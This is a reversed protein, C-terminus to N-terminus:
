AGAQPALPHAAAADGPQRNLADLARKADGWHGAGMKVLFQMILANNRTVRIEDDPPGPNERLAEALHQPAANQFRQWLGKEERNGFATGTSLILIACSILIAILFVVQEFTVVYFTNPTFAFRFNDPIPVIALWGFIAMAKFATRRFNSSLRQETTRVLLRDPRGTGGALPGAFYSMMPIFVGARLMMYPGWAPAPLPLLTRHLAWITFLGWVGGAITSLPDWGSRYKGPRKDETFLGIVGGAVFALIIWMLIINGLDLSVSSLVLAEVAILSAIAFSIVPWHSRKERFLELLRKWGSHTNANDGTGSTEFSHDGGALRVVVAAAEMFYRPAFLIIDGLRNRLWYSFGSPSYATLAAVILGFGITEGQWGSRGFLPSIFMSTLLLAVGGGAVGFALPKSLWNGRARVSATLGHLTLAQSFIIAVSWFLMQIGVFPNMDLFIGFFMLAINFVGFPATLYIREVNRRAKREFISEPGLFSIRQQIPSRLADILGGSWRSGAASVSFSSRKERLKVASSLTVGFAPVRGLGILNHTQQFVSWLDESQGIGNPIFGALGFHQSDTAVSVAGDLSTHAGSLSMVPYTPHSLAAMIPWFHIAALNAWGTGIKDPIAVLASGHGGEVAESQRGIPEITNSTNRFATLIVLDPNALMRRYDKMVKELELVNTNRDLIHMARFAPLQDALLMMGNMVGSKTSVNTWNYTVAQCGDGQGSIHQFLRGIREAQLLLFGHTNIAAPSDSLDDHKRYKNLTQVFCVEGLSANAISEALEMTNISTDLTTGGSGSVITLLRTLDRALLMKVRDYKDVGEFRLGVPLPEATSHDLQCRHLLSVKHRLERGHLIDLWRGIEQYCCNEDGDPMPVEANRAAIRLVKLYQQLPEFGKDTLEKIDTLYDKRLLRLADLRAQRIALRAPMNHLRQRVATAYKEHVPSALSGSASAIVVKAGPPSPSIIETGETSPYAHEHPAQREVVPGRTPWFVSVVSTVIAWLGYYILYLTVILAILGGYLRPYPDVQAQYHGLWWGSTLYGIASGVTLFLLIQLIVIVTVRRRSHGITPRFHHYFSLGILSRRMAVYGWTEALAVGGLLVKLFWIGANPEPIYYIGVAAMLAPGGMLSAAFKTWLNAPGGMWVGGAPMNRWESLTGFVALLALTAPAAWYTRFTSVTNAVGDTLGLGIGALVIFFVPLLDAYEQGIYVHISKTWWGFLHRLRDIMWHRPTEWGSEHLFKIYNKGRGFFMGRSIGHRYLIEQVRADDRRRLPTRLELFIAQLYTYLKEWVYPDVVGRRTAPREWVVRDVMESRNRSRSSFLIAQFYTSLDKCLAVLGRRSRNRRCRPRALRGNRAEAGRGRSYEQVLYNAVRITFRDLANLMDDGETGVVLHAGDAHRKRWAILAAYIPYIYCLFQVEPIGDPTFIRRPQDRQLDPRRPDAPEFAVLVNEAVRKVAMRAIEDTYLSEPPDRESSGSTAASFPMRMRPLGERFRDWRRRWYRSVALILVCYILGPLGVFVAVPVYKISRIAPFGNSDTLEVTQYWRGSLMDRVYLTQREGEDEIETRQWIAIVEGKENTALIPKFWPVRTDLYVRKERSLFPQLPYSMVQSFQQLYLRGSDRAHFERQLYNAESVSVYWYGEVARCRLWEVDQLASNGIKNGGPGQRLMMMDQESIRPQLISLQPRSPDYSRRGIEGPADEKPCTGLQLRSSNYGEPLQDRDTADRGAFLMLQGLSGGISDRIGLNGPSIDIPPVPRNLKRFLTTNGQMWWLNIHSVWQKSGVLRRNDARILDNGLPDNPLLYNEETHAADQSSYYPRGGAGQVLKKPTSEVVGLTTNATVGYASYHETIATEGQRSGGFPWVRQRWDRPAARENLHFAAYDWYAKAYLDLATKAITGSKARFVGMLANRPTLKVTRQSYKGNWESSVERSDGTDVMILRELNDQPLRYDVSIGGNFSIRCSVQLTTGAHLGANKLDSSIQRLQSILSATTVSDFGANKFDGMLGGTDSTDDIGGFALREIAHGDPMMMSEFRRKIDRGEAEDFHAKHARLSSSLQNSSLGDRLAQEFTEFGPYYIDVVRIGKFTSRSHMLQSSDGMAYEHQTRWRVPSETDRTSNLQWSTLRGLADIDRVEVLTAAAKAENLRNALSKDDWLVETKANAWDVKNLDAPRYAAVTRHKAYVDSEYVEDVIQDPGVHYLPRERGAKPDYVTGGLFIVRPGLRQQLTQPPARAGASQLELPGGYGPPNYPDVPNPGPLPAGVDNALARYIASRTEGDHKNYANIERDGVKLRDYFRREMTQNLANWEFLVHGEKDRDTLRLLTKGDPSYVAIAVADGYLKVGYRETVHHSADTSYIPYQWDVTGAFHIVRSPTIGDQGLYSRSVLHEGKWHDTIKRHTVLNERLQDYSDDPFSDSESVVPALLTEEDPYPPGANAEDLLKQARQVSAERRFKAGKVGYSIQAVHKGDLTLFLTLNKDAQKVSTQRERVFCFPLQDSGAGIGILGNLKMKRIPTHTNPKVDSCDIEVETGPATVSVFGWAQQHDTLWKLLQPQPLIQGELNNSADVKILADESYPFKLSQRVPTPLDRVRKIGSFQRDNFTPAKLAVPKGGDSELLIAGADHSMRAIEEQLAYPAGLVLTEDKRVRVNGHIPDQIDGDESLVIIFPAGPDAKLPHVIHGAIKQNTTQDRWSFIHEEDLQLDRSLGLTRMRQQYDQRLEEWGVPSLFWGPVRGKHFELFAATERLSAQISWTSNSDIRVEQKTVLDTIEGPQAGIRFFGYEPVFRGNVNETGAGVYSPLHEKATSNQNGEAGLISLLVPRLTPLPSERHLRERAIEDLSASTEIIVIQDRSLNVPRALLRDLQPDLFQGPEAAQLIVVGVPGDPWNSNLPVVHTHFKAGGYSVTENKNSGHVIIKGELSFKREFAQLDVSPDLVLAGGKALRQELLEISTASVDHHEWSGAVKRYSAPDSLREPVIAILEDPIGEPLSSYVERNDGTDRVMGQYGALSLDSEFLLSREAGSSSPVTLRLIFREDLLDYSYSAQISLSTPGPGLGLRSGLAAPVSGTVWRYEDGPHPLAHIYKWYATSRSENVSQLYALGPLSDALRYVHSTAERTTRVVFAGILPARGTRRGTQNFVYRTECVGSALDRVEKVDTARDFEREFNPIVGAPLEQEWVFPDEIGAQAREIATTGLEFQYTGPGAFLSGGSPASVRWSQAIVDWYLEAGPENKLAFARTGPPPSAVREDILFWQGETTDLLATKALGSLTPVALRVSPADNVFGVHSHVPSLPDRSDMIDLGYRDRAVALVRPHLDVSVHVTGNLSIQWQQTPKTPCVDTADSTTSALVLSGNAPALEPMRGETVLANWGEYEEPLSPLYVLVDENRLVNGREVPPQCNPWIVVGLPARPVIGLPYYPRVIESRSGVPVRVPKGMDYVSWKLGEQITLNDTKRDFVVRASGQRRPVFGGHAETLNLLGTKVARKSDIYAQFRSRIGTFQLLRSVGGNTSLKGAVTGDMRDLYAAGSTPRVLYLDGKETLRLLASQGRSDKAPVEQIFKPPKADVYGGNRSVVKYRIASILSKGNTLLGALYAGDLIRYLPNTNLSVLEAGSKGNALNDIEHPLGQAIQAAGLEALAGTGILKLREGKTSSNGIWIYRQSDVITFAGGNLVSWDDPQWRKRNQVDARTMLRGDFRLVTACDKSCFYIAGPVVQTGPSSVLVATASGFVKPDLRFGDGASDHRVSNNLKMAGGLGLIAGNVTGLGVSFPGPIKEWISREVTLGYASPGSGPALGPAIPFPNPYIVKNIVGPAAGVLGYALPAVGGSGIVFAENALQVALFPDLWSSSRLSARAFSRTQQSILTNKSITAISAIIQRDEFSSNGALNQQSTPQSLGSLRTQLRMVATELQEIQEVRQTKKGSDLRVLLKPSALDQFHSSVALLQTRLDARQKDSLLADNAPLLAELSKTGKRIANLADQLQDAQKGPQFSWSTTSQLAALLFDIDRKSVTAMNTLAVHPALARASEARKEVGQKQDNLREGQTQLEKKQEALLSTDLTKRAAARQLRAAQVALKGPNENLSLTSELTARAHEWASFDFELSFQGYWLRIARAKASIGLLSWLREEESDPLLHAAALTAQGASPLKDPLYAPSLTPDLFRSYAQADEVADAAAALLDQESTTWNGPKALRRQLESLKELAIISKQLARGFQDPEPRPSPLAGMLARAESAADNLTWRRSIQTLENALIKQESESLSLFQNSKNTSFTAQELRYRILKESTNLAREQVDRNLSDELVNLLDVVSEVALRIEGRDFSLLADKIKARNTAREEDPILPTSVLARNLAGLDAQLSPIRWSSEVFKHLQEALTRLEDPTVETQAQFANMRAAVRDFERAFAESGALRRDLAGGDSHASRRLAALAEAFQAPRTASLKAAAVKMAEKLETSYTPLWAAFRSGAADLDIKMAVRQNAFNSEEANIADLSDRTDQLAQEVHSLDENTKQKLEALQQETIQVLQGRIDARRSNDESPKKETPYVPESVSGDIAPARNKQILWPLDGLGILFLLLAATLSRLWAWQVRLAGRRCCRILIGLSASVALVRVLLLVWGLVRHNPDNWPAIQALVSM